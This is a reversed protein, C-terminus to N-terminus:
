VQCRIHCGNILEQFLPSQLEANGLCSHCSEVEVALFDVVLNGNWSVPYHYWVVTEWDVKPDLKISTQHISLM